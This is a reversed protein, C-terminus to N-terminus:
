QGNIPDENSTGDDGDNNVQTPGDEDTSGDGDNDFGDSVDEDTFGDGDDDIGAPGDEDFRGDGDGDASGVAFMGVPDFVVWGTALEFLDSLGDGDSDTPDTGVSSLGIATELNDDVGDQDRDHLFALLLQDGARLVVDEFNGSVPEERITSKAIWYNGVTDESGDGTVDVQEIAACRGRLCHLRNRGDVARVSFGQPEGPPLGISKELAEGLTIGRWGAAPDDGAEAERDVNTAVYYRELVGDGFDIILLATRTLTVEKVFDFNLGDATEFDASATEFALSNPQELLERITAGDLETASLEVPPTEEGPALTFDAVAPLLTGIPLFADRGELGGRAELDHNLRKALMNLNTLRYAINGTNKVRVSTRISGTSFTESKEFAESKVESIEESSERTTESATTFNHEFSYGLSLSFNSQIGFFMFAGVETGVTTTAQVSATNTISTSQGTTTGVSRGLTTGREVTEGRSEAYEINLRVDVDGAPFVELRPLDALVPSRGLVAYQEWDTSGDGDTDDLTPSTARPRPVRASDDLPLTLIDAAFLELGDFLAPQPAPRGDPGPGRSDGDSDVSTPSTLWRHVEEADTLGDGDTDVKGPDSKSLFEELDTLGDGDGDPSDPDSGVEYRTRDTINGFTDFGLGLGFPDVWVEWGHEELADPLGDGDSDSDLLAHCPAADYRDCSVTDDTPDPGCEPFPAPPELGGLFLYALAYIPDSIDIDGSDNADAADGCEMPYGGLFLYGLSHMPDSIDFRGDANSDGRSFLGLGQACLGAPALLILGLLWTANRRARTKM